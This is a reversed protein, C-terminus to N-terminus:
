PYESSLKYLEGDQEVWLINKNSEFCGEWERIVSWAELQKTESIIHEKM